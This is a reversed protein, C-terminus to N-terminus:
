PAAKPRSDSSSSGEEDSDSDDNAAAALPKSEEKDTAKEAAKAKAVRSLEERCYWVCSVLHHYTWQPRSNM